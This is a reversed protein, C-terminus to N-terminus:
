LLLPQRSGSHYHSALKPHKRRPYLRSGKHARGPQCKKGTRAKRRTPRLKWTAGRWHVTIASHNWNIGWFFVTGDEQGCINVNLTALLSANAGSIVVLNTCLCRVTPRLAIHLSFTAGFIRVTCGAHFSQITRDNCGRGAYWITTDM